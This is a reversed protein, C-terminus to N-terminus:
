EGLGAKDILEEYMQSQEDLFEKTETSDMYYNEWGNNDLVQQWGESEVMESFTDDWYAIEEETM